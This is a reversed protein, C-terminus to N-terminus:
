HKTDQAAVSNHNSRVARVLGTWGYKDKTNVDAGSQLAAKGGELDSKKCFEILSM